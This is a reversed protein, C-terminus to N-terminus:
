RLNERRSVRTAARAVVRVGLRWSAREAYRRPAASGAPERGHYRATHIDNAYGGCRFPGDFIRECPERAIERKRRDRALRRRPWVEDREGFRQAVIQRLETQRPSAHEFYGVRKWADGRFPHLRAGLCRRDEDVAVEVHLGDFAFGPAGLRVREDAVTIAEEPAAGCVVHSPPEAVEDRHLRPEARGAAERAVHLEEELTFLLDPARVEFTVHVRIRVCELRVRHDEGVAFIRADVDGAEADAQAAQEFDLNGDAARVAVHV